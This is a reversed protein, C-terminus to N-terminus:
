YKSLIFREIMKEYLRYSKCHKLYGRISPIKRTIEELTIEDNSYMKQLKRFWRKLRTKNKNKLLIKDNFLKYGCFNVGDENKFYATKPNLKLKLSDLFIEIKERYLKCEEKSNLLIVFDDMYRVYYRIKLEEKIYKDLRNLFINAFYQSTYNGIPIGKKENNCFIIKRTFSLFERDKIRKCITGYLLEHDVSYFYKSVDCKLIYYNLNELAIKKMYFHLKNIAQHVGRGKICAYSDKIFDKVFIPKLCEEVYLQHVIRDRYPLVKIIREKPEYIRFERFRGFEYTGNLLEKGINMLNEELNMEFRIVEDRFRKGKKARKHAALLNSFTIKNRWINNKRRPMIGIGAEWM